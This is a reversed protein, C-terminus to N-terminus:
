GALYLVTLGTGTFITFATFGIRLAKPAENLGMFYNAIVNIKIYAVVFVAVTAAKDPGLGDGFAFSLLTFLMLAAWAALVRDNRFDISRM